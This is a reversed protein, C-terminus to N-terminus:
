KQIITVDSDFSDEKYRCGSPIEVEKIDNGNFAWESIYRVSDPIELVYLKNDEFADKSIIKLSRSLKVERLENNSFASKGISTVLDPIEVSTLSNNSFVHDGISIVSNPITVSSLENSRFAEEGILIVSDPIEVSTLINAKFANEGITTVSDPIIVSTLSNEEFARGSITTVAKGEITSPIKIDRVDGTYGVITVKSKEITYELDKEIDINGEIKVEEQTETKTNDKSDGIYYKKFYLKSDDVNEFHGFDKLIFEEEAFYWDKNFDGTGKTTIHSEDSFLKKTSPNYNAYSETILVSGNEKISRRKLLYKNEEIKRIYVYSDYYGAKGLTKTQGYWSGVFADEKIPPIYHKDKLQKEEEVDSIFDLPEYLKADEDILKLIEEDSELEFLRGDSYRVVYNVFNVNSNTIFIDDELYYRLPYFEDPDFNEGITAVHTEANYEINEGFIETIARLPVFTRAQKLRAPMELKIEKDNVSVSKSNIKLKVLKDENDITVEQEEGNWGVDYGLEEAIFRIPVFTRGSEVFPHVDSMVYFDNIWVKINRETNAFSMSNLLLFTVLVMIIFMMKKSSKVKVM